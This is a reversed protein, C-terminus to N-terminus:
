FLSLAQRLIDLAATTALEIASPEGGAEETPPIPETTPGFTQPQPTPPPPPPTGTQIIGDGVAVVSLVCILAFTALPARFSKM